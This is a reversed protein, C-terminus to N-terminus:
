LTCLCGFEDLLSSMMLIQLTDEKQCEEPEAWLFIRVALFLHSYHLLFTVSTVTVRCSAKFVPQRVRSEEDRSTQFSRQSRLPQLWREAELFLLLLRNSQVKCVNAFVSRFYVQIAQRIQCLQTVGFLAEGTHLPLSKLIREQSPRWHPFLGM